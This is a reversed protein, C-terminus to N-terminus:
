DLLYYFFINPNHLTYLISHTCCTHRCLFSVQKEEFFTEEKHTEMVKSLDGGECYEMVIYIRGAEKDLYILM